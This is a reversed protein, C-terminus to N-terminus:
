GVLPEQRWEQLLRSLADSELYLAVDVGGDPAEADLVVIIGDAPSMIPHVYRPRVGGGLFDVDYLRLRQWSTVILHRSGLFGLWLRQSAVEYAADHLLAAVAEPAFRCLTSRLEAALAGLGM